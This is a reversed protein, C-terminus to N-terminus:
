FFIAVTKISIIIKHKTCAREQKHPKQRLGLCRHCRTIQMIIFGKISFTALRIFSYTDIPRRTQRKAGRWFYLNAMVFGAWRLTEASSQSVHQNNTQENKQWTNTKTQKTETNRKEGCANKNQKTRKTHKTKNQQNPKTQKECTSTKTQKKKNKSSDRKLGLDELFM